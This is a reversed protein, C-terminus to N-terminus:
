RGNIAELAVARALARRAAALVPGRGRASRIPRRWLLVGRLWVRAIQTDGGSGTYGDTISGCDAPGGPGQVDYRSVWAWGCPLPPLDASM